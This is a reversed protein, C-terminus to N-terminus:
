RKNSNYGTIASYIQDISNLQSPLAQLIQNASNLEATLKKQQATIFSEERTIIGNLNYEISSNSKLALSVVGVSSKRGASNLISTFTKGWSNVNQFFGLVGSFDSNLLSDLATADVSLTGDSNMSIGLASLASLDSNGSNYNLTAGTAADMLSSTIALAGATGAMQSQFVIRSGSSDTM